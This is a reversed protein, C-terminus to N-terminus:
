CVSLCLLASTIFVSLSLEAVLHLQCGLSSSGYPTFQNDSESNFSSTNAQDGCSSHWHVKDKASYIKILLYCLM